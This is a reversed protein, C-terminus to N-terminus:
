VGFDDFFISDPEVGLDDLMTSVAKMMLPPGCLYFECDEPAPHRSLYDEWVATHVFGTSGQWKDGPAPDSLSVTWDFNRHKKALADLEDVYFLEARSRAGYWLTMKRKTHHVDLQEHIIARLPAMGVGGGIFVMEKNTEQARFSGFPGTAQVTDGPKLSFLWSSVIGPPADAQSPPPLALRINLVMRGAQTDQLRNSISYARSVPQSSNAKINRISQWAEQHKKPIEFTSFDLQYAPAELQIYDGAVIKPWKGNPFQLIIERILPTLPKTAVVKCDVSEVGLLSDPVSVAAPGRLTAQCALRMGDRIEKATLQAKEIPGIPDVGEDVKIKCLGCTGAGACVSPVMIGNQTLANLLRQGTKTNLVRSSNLTITTPSAPVLHARAILITATLFIILVSMVVVSFIVEQM